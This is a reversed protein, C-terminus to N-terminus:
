ASAEAFLKRLDTSPDALANADPLRELTLLRKLPTFERVNNVCAVGVARGHRVQILSFKGEASVSGRV